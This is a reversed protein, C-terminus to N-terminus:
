CSPPTVKCEYVLKHSKGGQFSHGLSSDPRKYIDIDLFPVHGDKEVDMIFQINSHTSNLYDLMNKLKRTRQSSSLCMMLTSSGATLRTPQEMSHENKFDGMFFSTM